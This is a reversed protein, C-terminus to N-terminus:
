EDGEWNLPVIFGSANKHGGGGYKKAIESVDFDGISRLSFSRGSPKDYYTAGFVNTKALENGADSALTYPLNAVEVNYGAINMNRRTVELLEHMDKFHKRELVIGDSILREIPTDMLTDWNDFTYDYSFVTSQIERTGCLDFRWLDRDQVHKILQPSDVNPNFWDWAIMAGSRDMDLVGHIKNEDLLSGLEDLATKHHDLITVTNAKDLIELMEDRKCSFDVFLVDHGTCDPLPKGYTGAFFEIDPYQKNVVWAATFGDACKGHYICLTPIIKITM